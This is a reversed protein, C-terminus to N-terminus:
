YSIIESNKNVNNNMVDESCQKEHESAFAQVARVAVAVNNYFCFGKAGDRM